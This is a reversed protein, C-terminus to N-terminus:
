AGLEMKKLKLKLSIYNNFLYGQAVKHAYSNFKPFVPTGLQKFNNLLNAIENLSETDDKFKKILAHFDSLLTIKSKTEYKVYIEEILRRQQSKYNGVLGYHVQIKEEWSRLQQPLQINEINVTEEPQLDFYYILGEKKKDILENRYLLKKQLFLLKVLLAEKLNEDIHLAEASTKWILIDAITRESFEYRLCELRNTELCLYFFSRYDNFSSNQNSFSNEKRKHGRLLRKKPDLSYLLDLDRFFYEFNIAITSRVLEIVNNLFLSQLENQAGVAEPNEPPIEILQSRESLFNELQEFIEKLELRNLRLYEGSLLTLSFHILTETAIEFISNSVIAKSDQIKEPGWDYKSVWDDALQNTKLRNILNGATFRSFVGM